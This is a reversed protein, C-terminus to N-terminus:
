LKCDAFYQHVPTSSISSIEKQAIFQKYQNIQVCIFSCLIIVVCYHSLIWMIEIKVGDKIQNHM